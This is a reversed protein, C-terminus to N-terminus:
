KRTPQITFPLPPLFNWDGALVPTMDHKSPLFIKPGSIKLQDTLNAFCSDIMVRLSAREIVSIWDFINETLNVTHEIPKIEVIPRGQAISAISLNAQANSATLHCVVYDEKTVVARFLKEERERDRVIHLNWKERFPVGAVAYKYQDFSMSSLLPVM